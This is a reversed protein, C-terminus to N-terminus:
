EEGFVVGMPSHIAIPNYGELVNVANYRPMKRFNVIHRFNWSVIFHCQSITAYAVHLADNQWNETLIGADLYARTLRQAETDDIIVIEMSPLWNNFYIKVKEPASAIELTVLGSSVIQFKGARALRFFRKSEEEYLEDFVGGFVSTDIYIRPIPHRM